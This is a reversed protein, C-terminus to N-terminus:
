GLEERAANEGVFGSAAEAISEGDLGYLRFLENQTGQPVFDRGFNKLLVRRACIGREALAAALRLGVCGQEASDEAVILAGTKKVSREVLEM